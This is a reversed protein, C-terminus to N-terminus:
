KGGDDKKEKIIEGDGKIRKNNKEDGNQEEIIEELGKM